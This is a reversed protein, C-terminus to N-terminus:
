VNVAPLRELDRNFDSMQNVRDLALNLLENTIERGNVHTTGTPTGYLVINSVWIGQCCISACVLRGSRFVVDPWAHPLRRIPYQSLVGVGSWQGTESVETRVTVPADGVFSKYPSPAERLNARFVSVDLANRFVVVRPSYIRGLLLSPHKPWQPQCGRFDM